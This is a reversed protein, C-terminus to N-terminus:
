PASRRRPAPRAVTRAKSRNVDRDEDVRIKTLRAADKAMAESKKGYRYSTQFDGYGARFKAQELYAAAGFYEYPAWREAHMLKADSVAREARITVQSVFEIPGCAAGMSFLVLIPLFRTIRQRM